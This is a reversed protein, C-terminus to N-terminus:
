SFDLLCALLSVFLFLVFYGLNARPAPLRDRGVMKQFQPTGMAYRPWFNVVAMM